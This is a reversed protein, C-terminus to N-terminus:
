PRYHLPHVKKCLAHASRKSACNSIELMVSSAPIHVAQQLAYDYLVVTGDSQGLYLLSRTELGTLNPADQSNSTAKVKVPHAQVPFVVFPGINLPLVPEGSQVWRARKTAASFTNLGVMVILLAMSSVAIGLGLIKVMDRHFFVDRWKVALVVWITIVSVGIFVVAYLVMGVSNALTSAYTLGVDNPNLGLAGYFRSYAISTVAYLLIGSLGLGVTAIAAATQWDISNDAHENSPGM